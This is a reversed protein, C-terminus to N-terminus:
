AGSNRAAEKHVWERPNMGFEKKFCKSFYSHNTFGVQFMVESVSLKGSSLLKEAKQLRIFRVFENLSRGTISKIRRYLNSHSVGVAYSIDRASIRPNTIHDHTYAVVEKLLKDDKSDVEVHQANMLLSRNIFEETRRVRNILNAINAELVEIDLPKSLFVDAGADIAELQHEVEALATLFIIPIRSTVMDKRIRKCLSIGSFDPLQIESIIITPVPDKLVDLADTGNSAWIISYSASLSAKIYDFMDRSEDVLLVLPLDGSANLKQILMDKDRSITERSVLEKVYGPDKTDGTPAYRAPLIIRVSTGEGVRSELELRGNLIHVFDRVITLGIGAGRSEMDQGSVQYFRDFVNKQEVEPIGIGNDKVELLVEDTAIKKVALIVSGSRPTFKIANSLLNQLISYLKEEDTDIILERIESKLKLSVGRSLAMGKFFSLVERCFSILELRNDIRKVTHGIEIKRFNLLQNVYVKLFHANREILKLTTRSSGDIEKGSLMQKVPDIILGISTLLEHSINVFFRIKSANLLEDQEKEMQIRSVQDRFKLRNRYQLVIIASVFFLLLFYFVLLPPSAWVPLKIRIALRTLEDDSDQTFSKVKFVYKGPPLNVYNATNAGPETLKWTDEYGDLMYLYQEHEINNFQFSSYEFDLNRKRSPLVLTRNQYIQNRQIPNVSEGNVKVTTIDIRNRYGQVRFEKPNFRLYGDFGCILIDGEATKRFPSLILKKIPLRDPVPFYNFSKTNPDLRFITNSSSGWIYGQEDEIMGTVIFDEDIPMRIREFRNAKIDYVFVQNRSGIWVQEDASYAISTIAEDGAFENLEDLQEVKRTIFSFRSLIKGDLSWLHEKGLVVQGNLDAVYQIRIDELKEVNIDAKYLGGGWTAIWMEEENVQHFSSIYNSAVRAQSGDDMPPIHIKNETQDWVNIGAVSGIWIRENVDMSIANINGISLSSIDSARVLNRNPGAADTSTLIGSSTALWYRGRSDKLVDAVRTGVPDVNDSFYVPIYEFLDSSVNLRNVGSSTGLWLNGKKDPGVRWVENNVISYPNYPNHYFNEIRGTSLDLKNFGLDTGFYIESSDRAYITKVVENTLDSNQENFSSFTRTLRNFLCLGTETGVLLISDNEKFFPQIDLILNHTIDPKYSGKLDITEFSSQGAYMVNLRDATGVWLNGTLDLYLTEIINQSLNSNLNNFYAYTDTLPDYKYLGQETGIWLLSDGVLLLKRIIQDRFQPFVRSTWSDLSLRVLGQRTGVWLTHEGDLALTQVGVAGLLTSSETDPVQIRIARYGDYRLLGYETGFWMYGTSDQCFAYVRSNLNSGIGSVTEFLLPGQSLAPYAATLQMLIMINMFIRKM